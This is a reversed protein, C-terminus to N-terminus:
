EVRIKEIQATNGEHIIVFYIGAKLASVDIKLGNELTTEEFVKVGLINVIEISANKLGSILVVSEQPDVLIEEARNNILEYDSISIITEFVAYDKGDIDPEFVGKMTAMGGSGSATLHKRSLGVEIKNEGEIEKWVSIIENSGGIWSDGFDIEVSGDKVLDLDVNITFAIGYVDNVPNDSEGLIIPYSFPFGGVANDNIEVYFPPEGDLEDEEIEDKGQLSGYNEEIAAVDAEEVIGNGDCDAFKFNLGDTFALSFDGTADLWDASPQGVWETSANVRPTGTEGYALGINLIDYNNAVGDNNTDGPYLDGQDCADGIDNDDVDLQNPNFIDVCNDDEDCIGDLDADTNGSIFIKSPGFVSTTFIDAAADGSIDGVAISFSGYSGFAIPKDAFTGDGNNVWINNERSILGARNCTILDLDGDVDIDAAVIDVTYANGLSQSLTFGSTSNLYLENPGKNITVLDLLGDGNFDASYIPAQYDLLDTETYNGAGDNLYLFPNPNGTAQSAGPAIDETLDAFDDLFYPSVILDNDGDGDFDGLILQGEYNLSTELTYQTGNWKYVETNGSPTGSLFIDVYGEKSIDNDLAVDRAPPFASPGVTLWDVGQNSYRIHSGEAASKALFMDLHGDSNFDHLALDATPDYVAVTGNVETFVGNVNICTMFGNEIGVVVDDLGDGSLDGMAVKGYTFMAPMSQGTDTATYCPLPSECDPNIIIEISGFYDETVGLADTRSMLFSFVGSNLATAYVVSRDEPIDDGLLEQGQNPFYISLDDNLVFAVDNIQYEPFLSQLDVLVSDGECVTYTQDQGNVFLPLGFLLLLLLINKL